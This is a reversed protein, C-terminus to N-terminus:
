AAEVEPVSADIAGARTAKPRSLGQPAAIAMLPPVGSEGASITVKNEASPPPSASNLVPPTSRGDSIPARITGGGPLAVNSSGMRVPPSSPAGRIDAASPLRRFKKRSNTSKSVAPAVGHKLFDEDKAM